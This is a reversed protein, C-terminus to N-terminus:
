MSSASDPLHLEGPADVNAAVSIFGPSSPEIIQQAIIQQAFGLREGAQIESSRRPHTAKILRPREFLPGFVSEGRGSIPLARM